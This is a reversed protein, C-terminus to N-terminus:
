LHEAGSILLRERFLLYLEPCKAFYESAKDDDQRSFYLLGIDLMRLKFPMTGFRYEDIPMPLTSLGHCMTDSDLDMKFIDEMEAITPCHDFITEIHNQKSM